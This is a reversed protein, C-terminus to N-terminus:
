SLFQLVADHVNGGTNNRLDLILADRKYAESVMERKFNTLEGDSMNKMHVYAIRKNSKSDVYSQNNAVWEDYLLVKLTTSSIPHLYITTDKNNRTFVLEIENDLSPKSFNSERNKKPDVVQGNVQKLVDGAKIDKGSIDAPSKAVIREVQFPNTKSFVIGTELTNSGYYVVDEKGESRFGFHSTNLEGLMDNFLLSLQERKTIHPLFVAYKDRLTQWNEGHFKEDYFNSEFGAWAEYFMQNFENGLNKRFTVETEIKELKVPDLAMTHINGNILAYPKDKVYLLQSSRIVTADVKETKNKEFPKITTRWLLENGESHNSLYYIYSVGDKVIEFPNEQAGFAPSILELRDMLGVENITIKISDEVLATKLSDKDNTKEEKKDVKQEEKKKDKDEEKFLETFKESIFPLEYKDLAIRYIHTDGIGRPFRPETLNSEFYIYKGDKSWMPNSESVGTNTLNIIKKNAIQYTFIDLEFDRFANYLLYKGDPSFQITTRGLAWFEDTVVTVSKFDSLPMLRLENRGSLYAANELKNDLVLGINNAAENTQRIASGTGDAAITFINTYGAATQLFLLTRNDKLWKVETVREGPSTPLQKIFKGKIDSVFLAGRAIFAMKKNDPSVDFYTINDKVKFDQDKTLTNNIPIDVNIKQTKKGAVDYLYLQYDKTFVIKNGNASVQPWGISTKFNTLETKKGNVFTYLNYEGNVEDSAFYIHGKADITVWMDKGRYTTYEKYAKTKTNYSKINPNFDGKYRKRHTFNKSEWSENFFIEGSSPHEVVNHVNNFYHDFLRIPTQGDISVQYGSYRNSRSSTFYIQKSDWSWSDVDDAADHFTLQKIEGGLIPMIYVDKNGYQSASFAIWKGDPSIRPLTEEGKMGTLRWAQGGESDVKWLDGDYSFVVFKGDPSISPDM